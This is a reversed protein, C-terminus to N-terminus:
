FTHLGDAPILNVTNFRSIISFENSGAIKSLNGNKRSVKNVLESSTQADPTM